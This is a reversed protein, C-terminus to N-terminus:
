TNVPPSPQRGSRRSSVRRSGSAPPDPTKKRRKSDLQEAESASGWKQIAPWSKEILGQMCQHCSKHLPGFFTWPSPDVNTPLTSEAKEYAAVLDGRIQKLNPHCGSLRPEFTNTLRQLEQNVMFFLARSPTIWAPFAKDLQAVQADRSWNESPDTVESMAFVYLLIWWFSECEHLPNHSLQPICEVGTTETLSKPALAILPEGMRQITLYVDKMPDDQEFQQVKPVEISSTSGEAGEAARKRPDASKTFMYM